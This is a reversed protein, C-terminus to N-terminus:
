RTHLNTDENKEEVDVYITEPTYPFEVEVASDKSTYCVGSPERFVRGDIFYASGNARKFVRGDRKNQAAMEDGYDLTAWEWDEGTLPTLPELRALKDFCSLTYNASFGSHGQESFKSLLERLADVVMQQMEEYTGEERMWAAKMEVEAHDLINSM